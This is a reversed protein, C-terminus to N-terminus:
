RFRWEVGYPARSGGEATLRRVKGIAQLIRPSEAAILREFKANLQCAFSGPSSDYCAPDTFQANHILQQLIKTESEELEMLQFTDSYEDLEDSFVAKFYHVTTDGVSVGEIPGDHYNFICEITENAVVVEGGALRLGSIAVHPRYCLGSRAM